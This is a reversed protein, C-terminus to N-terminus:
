KYAGGGLSAAWAARRRADAREQLAQVETQENRRASEFQDKSIHGSEYEKSKDVLQSALKMLDSKGAFSKTQALQTYKDAYYDSWKIRGSEAAQSSSSQWAQLPTTAACACLLLAAAMGIWQKM